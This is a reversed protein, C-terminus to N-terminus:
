HSNRLQLLLPATPYGDAPQGTSQQFARIAKRTNAGIIGDVTGPALGRDTLLQQLEIRESRSLPADEVPWRGALQGGGKFSDALLGVALAYSTSNNYKLIARFNDTVLFAPGRYGAPLVLSVSAQPDSPLTGSAPRVGLRLWEAMPKRISMEALAYDFGQPLRVEFGWTQGRQWGSTKLYNATSALADPSSGWIDRRGDGDFDVAYQNYTTPIFQTQGMAGAWSGIMNSAPVDGHQLIQLAAILQDRGFDPRRGEYALTALSRIVNKSGMQQGFNSEMGWIAVVAERDVGYASDIRQLVEVNQLLRDQGNRVRAPSVASELYQWVPRSFEPQSRDATVVSDDPEIGEFATDFTQANIGAALAQARFGDRWQAFSQTPQAHEVAAGKPPPETCSTLLGFSALSLAAVLLCRQGVVPSVPKRM